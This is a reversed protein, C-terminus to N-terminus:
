TLVNVNLPLKMGVPSIEIKITYLYYYVTIIPVSQFDFINPIKNLSSDLSFCLSGDIKLMVFKRDNTRLHSDM